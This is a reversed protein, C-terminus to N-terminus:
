PRALPVRRATATDRGRRFVFKAAIGEVMYAGDRVVGNVIAERGDAGVSFVAPQVMELPWIISTFRGDDFMEAPRVSKDGRIAYPTLVVQVAPAPPPPPPPYSFRVVFPMDRTPGFLPLLSFSYRRSDTIVVLNTETAGRLPKVFLHDARRNPTVQWAGSNGVAVNEIREDPSFEIAVAYGPAVRLVVVDAPDYGVTQIRPDEAGPLPSREAIAPLALLLAAGALAFGRMM